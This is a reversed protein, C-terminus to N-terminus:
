SSLPSMPLTIVFTAGREHGESAATISGGHLEVLHQVISLGLGLGSQFQSGKRYREFVHPLFAPDIGIGNDSVALHASSGNRELTMSIWGGRGTFKRSNTLLNWLVQQMRQADAQVPVAEDPLAIRLEVGRDRVLPAFADAAQRVIMRLDLPLRELTLGGTAIRAADYLDDVVRSVHLASEQVSSIASDVLQPDDRNEELYKLWGLIASLPSRLDHAVTAMLDDKARNAEQQRQLAGRREEALQEVRKQETIDVGVVVRGTTMGREDVIPAESVAVDILKDGSGRWQAPEAGTVSSLDAQILQEQGRGLLDSAFRNAVQIKEERDVILVAAPIADRVQLAAFESTFDALRYRTIARASLVLFIAVALFGFPYINFGLTALFDVSGVYGFAFAFLFARVREHQRRPHPLRREIIHLRLSATLVAGFFLLFLAAGTGRLRPYYGWSYRQVDSLIWDSGLFIVVFLLALGWNVVVFRHERRPDALLSWSFHYIAAPILPVAIYCIRAWFLARAPDTTSYMASITALWGSVTLTILFFTTSIGSVRERFLVICGLALIAVSTFLTPLAYYNLQDLNTRARTV